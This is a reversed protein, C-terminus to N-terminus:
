KIGQFIKCDSRILELLTVCPTLDYTQYYNNLARTIEEGRSHDLFLITEQSNLHKAFLLIQLNLSSLTTLIDMPKMNIHDKVINGFLSSRKANYSRRLQEYFKTIELPRKDNIFKIVEVPTSDSSAVLLMQDKTNVGSQKLNKLLLLLDQSTLM